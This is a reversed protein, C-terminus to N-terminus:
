FRSVSRKTGEPLWCNPTRCCDQDIRRNQQLWWFKNARLAANDPSSEAAFEREFDFASTAQWTEIPMKISDLVDRVKALWADYSNAHIAM